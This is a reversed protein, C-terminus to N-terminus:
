FYSGYTQSQSLLSFSYGGSSFGEEPYFATVSKFGNPEGAGVQWDGYVFVLANM